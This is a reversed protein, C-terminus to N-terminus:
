AAGIRRRPMDVLGDYIEELRRTQTTLDFRSRVHEVGAASLHHWLEDDDLLRELQSALAAVDREAVLLGTVGDAVAEPIGGSRTSVVPLGMAQAEAFVLGFGEADGSAATVSPVCFVRARRMWDRVASPQQAGVFETDVGIRDSLAELSRRERGDGVVVLRAEPHRETVSRMAEILFRCGKKEVLRGVFLVIPERATVPDVRFVATDVGIYHVLVRDSPYGQAILRDRIFRSVAIFAAGDRQLVGRRAVYARHLPSRRAFEDTMTADIGHFTVVLPIGLRAALPRAVAGDFGFHAHLLTPRIRRLRAAVAGPLIGWGKFALEYARGLPGGRNIILQRDAPLQLGGGHRAGLYYGRFRTLSEGQSRIFTESTALLRNRYYVVAPRSPM